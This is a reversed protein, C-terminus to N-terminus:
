GRRLQVDFGTAQFPPLSLLKPAISCMGTALSLELSGTLAPSKSPQIFTPQTNSIDGFEVLWQVIMSLDELLPFSYILNLFHSSPVVTSSIRFSRIVPSFGYFLSLSEFRTRDVSMELRVVRSFAPIWGGEEADAPAIAQPFEVFFFNIYPAPCASPYPFITKWSRLNEPSRFVVHAFLYRQTRSVWSKSVLCCSKLEDKAHHLHDVDNDLMEAPLHANSTTTESPFRNKGKPVRPPNIM